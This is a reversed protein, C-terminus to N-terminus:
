SLKADRDIIGMKRRSGGKFQQQLREVLIAYPLDDDLDTEEYWNNVFDGVFATTKGGLCDPLM